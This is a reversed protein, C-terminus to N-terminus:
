IIPLAQLFFFIPDNTQTDITSVICHLCTYQEQGFNSDMEFSIGDGQQTADGWGYNMQQGMNYYHNPDNPNAM